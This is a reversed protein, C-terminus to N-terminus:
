PIVRFRGGLAEGMPVAKDTLVSPFSPALYRVVTPVPSGACGWRGADSCLQSERSTGSGAAHVPSPRQKGGLKAGLEM